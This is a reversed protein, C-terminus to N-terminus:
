VTPQRSELQLHAASAFCKSQKGLGNGVDKCEIRFLETPLKTQDILDLCGAVGGQWIMTEAKTTETM